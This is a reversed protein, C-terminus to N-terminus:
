IISNMQTFVRTVLVGALMGMLVILPLLRYMILFAPKQTIRAKAAAKRKEDMQKSEAQLIGVLNRNGSQHVQLLLSTLQDGEPLGISDKLVELANVAGSPWAALAKNIDETLMPTFERAYALSQPISYGSQIFIEITNFLLFCEQKRREEKGRILIRYTIEVAGAGLGASILTGTAIYPTGYTLSMGIIFGAFGGIILRTDKNTKKISIQKSILYVQTKTTIIDISLYLVM